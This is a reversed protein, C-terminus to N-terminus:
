NKLLETIKCHVEILTSRRNYSAIYVSENEKTLQEAYPLRIIKAIIESEKGAESTIWESLNFIVSSTEM